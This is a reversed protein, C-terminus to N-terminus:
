WMRLSVNGSASSSATWHRRVKAFRQSRNILPTQLLCRAAYPSAARCVRYAVVRYSVVRYSPSLLPAACCGRHMPDHRLDLSPVVAPPHPHHLRASESCQSACPTDMAKPQVTFTGNAFIYRFPPILMGIPDVCTHLACEQLSLFM